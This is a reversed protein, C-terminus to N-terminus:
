PCNSGSPVDSSMPSFRGAQLTAIGKYPQNFRTAKVDVAPLRIATYADGTKALLANHEYSGLEAAAKLPDNAYVEMLTLASRKAGKLTVLRLAYGYEDGYYVRVARESATGADEVRCSGGSFSISKREGPREPLGVIFGIPSDLEPNDACIGAKAKAEAEKAAREDAAKQRAAADAKARNVAERAEQEARQMWYEGEDSQAFASVALPLALLAALLTKM